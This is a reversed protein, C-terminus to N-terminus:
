EIEVYFDYSTVLDDTGHGDELVIMEFDHSTGDFGSGDEKLISAFIPTETNSAVTGDTLLVEDFLGEGNEDYLLVNNCPGLPGGLLDRGNVYLESTSTTAFTDVVGDMDTTDINFHTELTPGNGAVDYCDVGYWDVTVLETAFVEGRPSALTWNYIAHDTADALTITGTVEGFYGQWAQTNTFGSVDVQTVNGAYADISGADDAPERQPYAADPTLAAGFPEVALVSGLMLVTTVIFIIVLNRFKM